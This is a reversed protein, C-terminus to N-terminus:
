YKITGLERRAILKTFPVSWRFRCYKCEFIDQYEEILNLSSSSTDAVKHHGVWKYYTIKSRILAKGLFVTGKKETAWMKRCKKCRNQKLKEKQYAMQSFWVVGFLIPFLLGKYPPTALLFVFIDLTTVLVIIWGFILIYKDKLFHLHALLTVLKSMLVIPIILIGIAIIWKVIWLYINNKGLNDLRYFQDILWGKQGLIAHLRGGGLTSPGIQQTQGAMVLGKVGNVEVIHQLMDKKVLNVIDGRKVYGVRKKGDKVPQSKLILLKNTYSSDNESVAIISSVWGQKKEFEVRYWSGSTEELSFDDGIQVKGIVAHNTGPGSRVNGEKIIVVETRAAYVDNFSNLLIITFLISIKISNKLYKM